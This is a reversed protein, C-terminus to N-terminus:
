NKFKIFVNNNWPVDDHFSILVLMRCTCASHIFDITEYNHTPMGLYKLELM